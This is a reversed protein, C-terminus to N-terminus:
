VRSLAADLRDCVDRAWPNRRRRAFSGRLQKLLSFCRQSEVVPLRTLAMGTTKSAAELDRTALHAQVLYCGHLLASRQYEQGLDATTLPVLHEVAETLLATRHAPNREALHVLAQGAEARLQSSSLYYLFPLTDDTPASALQTSAIDAAVRYAYVDGAAAYATALRGALRARLLPGSRRALSMAHEALRVAHRPEGGHATMYSLMGLMNTLVDNDEAAAALRIGLLFTRQSRGVDGNDFWMWGALQCLEATAVLLQRGITADFSAHNLLDLLARLEARVYRLSTAGGGTRDDLRRLAAIHSRIVPLLPPSVREGFRPLAGTAELPGTASRAAAVLRAGHAPLFVDGEASLANLGAFVRQQTIPGHLGETSTSPARQKSDPADWLNTVTVPRGLRISLVDAAVAAVTVDNPAHGSKVWHYPGTPHIRDRARGRLMLLRNIEADWRRPTWGAEALLRTVSSDTMVRVINRVCAGVAPNGTDPRNEVGNVGSDIRNVAKM